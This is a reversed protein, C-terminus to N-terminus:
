INYYSDYAKNESKCMKIKKVVVDYMARKAPVLYQRPDSANPNENFYEKIASSFLGKRYKYTIENYVFVVEKEENPKLLIKKFGKLEKVPRQIANTKDAVYLQVIEKGAM